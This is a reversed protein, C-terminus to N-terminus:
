LNPFFVASLRVEELGDDTKDAMGCRYPFSTTDILKSLREQTNAFPPNLGADRLRLAAPKACSARLPNVKEPLFAAFFTYLVNNM